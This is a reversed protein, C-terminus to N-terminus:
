GCANDHPVPAPHWQCPGCWRCALLLCLWVVTATKSTSEQSQHIDGSHPTPSPRKQLAFRQRQGGPQLTLTADGQLKYGSIDVAFTNPNAISLYQGAGSSVDSNGFALQPGSPQATPIM